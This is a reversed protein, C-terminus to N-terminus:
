DTLRSNRGLRGRLEKRFTREGEGCLEVGLKELCVRATGSRGLAHLFRTCVRRCCVAVIVSVIIIIIIIILPKACDCNLNITVSHLRSATLILM